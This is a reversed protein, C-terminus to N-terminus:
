QLSHSHCLRVCAVVCVSPCVFLSTYKYALLNEYSFFKFILTQNAGMARDCSWAKAFLCYFEIFIVPLEPGVEFAKQIEQEAM